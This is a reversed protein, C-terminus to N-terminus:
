ASPSPPLQHVTLTNQASPASHNLRALAQTRFRMSHAWNRAERPVGQRALICVRFM